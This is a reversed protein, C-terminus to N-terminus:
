RFYEESVSTIADEDPLWQGPVEPNMKVLDMVDYYDKTDSSLAAVMDMGEPEADEFSVVTVSWAEPDIELQANDDYAEEAELFDEVALLIKDYLEKQNM